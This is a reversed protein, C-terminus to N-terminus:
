WDWLETPAKGDLNCNAILQIDPYSTKIAAYYAAYNEVYFPHGCDQLVYRDIVFYLLLM